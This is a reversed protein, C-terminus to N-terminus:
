LFQQEVTVTPEEKSPVINRTFNIVIMIYLLAFRWIRNKRINHRSYFLCSYVTTSSNSSNTNYQGYVHRVDLYFYIKSCISIKDSKIDLIFTSTGIV